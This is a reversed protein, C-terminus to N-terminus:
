LAVPERAASKRLTSLPWDHCRMPAPWPRASSISGIIQASQPWGVSPWAIKAPTPSDVLTGDTVRLPPDPDIIAEVSPPSLQRVILSPSAGTSCTNAAPSYAIAQADQALLPATTAM